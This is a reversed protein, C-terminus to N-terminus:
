AADARRVPAGSPGTSEAAEDFPGQRDDAADALRRVPKVRRAAYYEAAQSTGTVRTVPAIRLPPTIEKGWTLFWPLWFRHFCHRCQMPVILLCRLIWDKWGSERRVYAKDAWCVPCKM